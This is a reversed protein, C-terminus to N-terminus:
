GGGGSHSHTARLHYGSPLTHGLDSIPGLRGRGAQSNDMSDGHVGSISLDCDKKQLLLDQGLSAGLATIYGSEIKPNPFAPNTEIGIM